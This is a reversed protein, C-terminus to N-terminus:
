RANMGRDLSGGQGVWGRKEVEYGPLDFAALQDGELQAVWRGGVVALPSAPAKPLPCRFQEAGEDNVALLFSGGDPQAATALVGGDTVLLLDPTSSVPGFPLSWRVTRTTADFDTLSQNSGESTVFVLREASLLASMSAARHGPPLTLRTDTLSPSVMMTDTYSTLWGETAGYAGPVAQLFRSAQVVGATSVRILEGAPAWCDASSLWLEGNATAGPGYLHGKKHVQWARQGTTRDLATVYGHHNTYGEGVGFGALNGGLLVPSSVSFSGGGDPQPNYLPLGVTLDQEWLLHGDVMSRAQARRSNAMLLRQAPPDLAFGSYYVCYECGRRLEARFRLTGARDLSVLETVQADGEVFYVNGDPDLQGGYRLHRGAAPLYRWVPSLPSPPPRVCTEARCVGEGTCLSSPACSSGEPSARTECSGTLCVRASRCDNPGCATGDPATTLGCGSEPRCLAVQCPGPPKPCLASLDEHQCGRAPDCSDGTCADEDGCEVAEGLCRGGLCQGNKVCRNPCAAGDELPEELCAGLSPDFRAASCEGPAPCSPPMRALASLPVTLTAEGFSVTLTGSAVGEKVADFGVRLEVTAGAPVQLEPAEVSFPGTISLSPRLNVRSTNRLSVTASLPYGVFGSPFELPAPEVVLGAEAASLRDSRCGALWAVLGLFVIRSCAM